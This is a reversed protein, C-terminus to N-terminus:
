RSARPTAVLAPPAPLAALAADIAEPSFGRIQRDGVLLVPVGEAGLQRMWGDALASQEVDLDAFAVGRAALHARTKACYDCWATGLLIVQEGAHARQEAYDGSVHDARTAGLWGHAALTGALAGLAAILLLTLTSKLLPNM